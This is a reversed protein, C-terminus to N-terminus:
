VDLKSGNVNIVHNMDKYTNLDLKWISNGETDEETKEFGFLSYHDKVMENKKTRLYEGVITGINRKHCEKVLADMMAYEMNRKLVRCSMVWLDVHCEDGEISGVILSVIGNDGYKDELRGQLTIFDVRESITEIEEKTYRRTTLNYQNSKNSLQSIRSYSIPSFPIIEASMGLSKLFSDYDLFQEAAQKRKKEAIYMDNRKRDDASITTTEFAGLRDIVQIYDEVKGIDPAVVGQVSSSVIEREAPNDDVFVMSEPLVGISEAISRLNIDKNDWNARIEIFDDLRLVSDPHNLGAVANEYDNKSNITLIIGLDKLQKIYEQFELYAEAEANENGIEIGEVGVDGVVGGWLTNDLDLVLGKKNKGYMAKIIRYVNYALTPIGEMPLAYKYLYWQKPNQWSKLGYDASIYNLDCIFMWDNKQAYRYMKGNLEHIFFTRGHTDYCDRNGLLRYMPMEFNNQIVPCGYKEKIKEWVQEFRAYEKELIDEYNDNLSPYQGINRNCTCIYIIDPKFDVLESNDFMVDQYYNNFESEYFSPRIGENLLFIELINRIECTTFGGLIAIRKDIFDTRSELLQRKIKKKQALIDGADFPFPIEIM